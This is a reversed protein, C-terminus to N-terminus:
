NKRYVSDFTKSINATMVGITDLGREPIKMSVKFECNYVKKDEFYVVNLIQIHVKSSDFYPSKELHALMVKKLETGVEERSLRRKCCLSLLLICGIAIKCVRNFSVSMFCTYLTFIGLSLM